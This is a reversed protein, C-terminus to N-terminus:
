LALRLYHDDLQFGLSFAPLSLAVALAALLGPSRPRALFALLREMLAEPRVAEAGSGRRPREDALLGHPRQRATGRDRRRARDLAAPSVPQGSRRRVDDRARRGRARHLAVGRV